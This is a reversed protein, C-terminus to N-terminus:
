IALIRETLCPQGRLLRKFRGGLMGCKTRLVMQLPIMRDV